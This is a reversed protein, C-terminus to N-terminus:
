QPEALAELEMHIELWREESAAIEGELQGQRKLKAELGARDPSTYIAPDALEIDLAAKEKQWAALQKDLQESEKILPRRKALLAQREAAAQERAEKRAAKDAVVEVAPAKAAERQTALWSAYDDLDGDFPTVQGDAVLLLTDATTRLLHRDHSVLVVGGEYENLALTLAERMELDLHNTPEDLLLLNPKKWILLALALRSKEGGSFKGCPANAMDGRFDFGGLYDRLEQERTQPDLRAMHQLPSEDPRLHELQHQAFYGIALGKGETREGSLPAM